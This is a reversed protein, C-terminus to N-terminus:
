TIEEFLSVIKIIEREKYEEFDLRKSFTKELRCIKRRKRKKLMLKLGNPFLLLSNFYTVKIIDAYDIDLQHKQINLEHSKFVFRKNTIFIKGGVGEIGLFHNAPRTLLIEENDQLELTITFMINLNNPLICRNKFTFFLFAISYVIQKNILSIIATNNLNLNATFM